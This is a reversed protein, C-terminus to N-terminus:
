INLGVLSQLVHIHRVKDLAQRVDLFVAVTINGYAREHELYYILYLLSAMISRGSRFFCMQDLLCKFVLSKIQVFSERKRVVM